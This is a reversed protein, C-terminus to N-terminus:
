QREFTYAYGAGDKTTYCLRGVRFKLFLDSPRTPAELILTKEGEDNDTLNVVTPFDDNDFAWKGSTGIFNPSDGTNFSYTLDSANFTMTPVTGQVFYETIDFRDVSTPDSAPDIEDPDFFYQEVKVLVWTANIGELKSQPAGLPLTEDDECSSFSLALLFAVFLWNIKSLDM